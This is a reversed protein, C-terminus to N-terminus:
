AWRRECVAPTAGCPGVIGACTYPSASNPPKTGKLVPGPSPTWLRGRGGPRPLRARWPGPPGPPPERELPTRFRPIVRVAGLWDGVRAAEVEVAQQADSGGWVHPEDRLRIRVYDVFLAFADDGAPQRKGPRRDGALYARVTKRDCGLHRRHGLDDLGAASPFPGGRRGGTHADAPVGAIVHASFVTM